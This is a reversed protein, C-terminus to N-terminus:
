LQITFTTGEGVQSEVNLKGRHLNIIKNTLPLGIGNGEKYNQNKGRYFPVFIFELDEPAIGIGKDIVQIILHYDEYMVQITCAKQESFKCANELLNVLAVELLYPNANVTMMEESTISEDIVFNFKYSADMKQLKQCADLIVEDVRISKFVIETPDYSAKAFDLLSNSLRVIKQSDSLANQITQIYYGQNQEKSLALELEAIIAALPTRLEHSINSVFQKQSDFSNELRNLMENFTNALAGLEDKNKETSIRLDLNMATIQNVEDNMKKIPLLVKDAFFLGVFYIVLLSIVVLVVITVFLNQLKTYGYEDYATATVIYEQNNFSYRMGIVQWDEQTYHLSGKEIISGIMEKTEKVRDIEEADHYLLHFDYDYVAVEVENIIESNNLYIKHLTTPKVQAELFLKAKTIAEKELEEYFEVERSKSSSWYIVSAFVLLISAVLLTFLLTLRTKIRM